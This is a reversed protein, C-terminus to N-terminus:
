LLNSCPCQKTRTTRIWPKRQQPIPQMPRDRNRNLDPEMKGARVDWHWSALMHSNLGIGKFQDAYEILKDTATPTHTTRIKEEKAWSLAPSLRQGAETSRLKAIRKAEREARASRWIKVLGSLETSMRQRNLQGTGNAEQAKAAFALHSLCFMVVSLCMVSRKIWM